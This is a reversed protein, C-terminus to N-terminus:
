QIDVGFHHEMLNKLGAFYCDFGYNEKVAIVSKRGMEAVIASDAAIQNLQDTLGDPADIPFVFGCQNEELYCALGCNNGSMVCLGQAMAELIVMGATESKSPLVLVDAQDYISTMESFPVNAKLEVIDDLGKEKVYASLEEYYAREASNELQGIVKLSFRSRDSVAALADILFFHNKYGRYKGVDLLHIKGDDAYSEKVTSRPECVLPIYYRPYYWATSIERSLRDTGKYLVPTFAVKPYVLRALGAMQKRESKKGYLPTQSYHILYKVGLAKCALCILANGISLNRIIVIQPKFSRIQKLVGFFHPLFAKNKKSEALSPNYRADAFRNYIRTFLSPKMLHFRVYDHSESVGQYQAM